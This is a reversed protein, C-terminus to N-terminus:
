KNTLTSSQLSPTPTNYTLGGVLAADWILWYRKLKSSSERREFPLRVFKSVLNLDTKLPLFTFYYSKRIALGLETRMRNIVIECDGDDYAALVADRSNNVVHELEHLVAWGIDFAARAEKDGSIHKFDTFDVIVRYTPPETGNAQPWHALEVRCFVVDSRSSAGELVILNKGEVASMLLDRATASGGRINTPDVRLNGNRDLTLDPWGSIAQLKTILESRYTSPLNDRVIVGRPIENAIAASSGALVFLCSTVFLRLSFHRHSSVLM